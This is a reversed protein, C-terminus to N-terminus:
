IGFKSFSGNTRNRQGVDIISRIYLQAIGTRETEM